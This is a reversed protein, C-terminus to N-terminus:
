PLECCVLGAGSTPGEALVSGGPGVVLSNGQLIKGKWPGETVRGVGNPAAIVLDRGGIRQRYTETIWQLNTTEGGPEVAWASPSFILRAGM